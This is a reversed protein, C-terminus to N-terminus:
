KHQAIKLSGIDIAQLKDIVSDLKQSIDNCDMKTYLIVIYLKLILFYM